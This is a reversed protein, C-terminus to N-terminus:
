ACRRARLYTWAPMSRRSCPSDCTWGQAVPGGTQGLVAVTKPFSRLDFGALAAPLYCTPMLLFLPPLVSDAALRRFFAFWPVLRPNAAPFEGGRSPRLFSEGAPDWSSRNIGM